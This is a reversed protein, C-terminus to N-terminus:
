WTGAGLVLDLDELTEGLAQLVSESHEWRRWYCGTGAALGVWRVRVGLCYWGAGGGEGAGQGAWHGGGLAGLKRTGGLGWWEGGPGLGASRVRAPSLPLTLPM